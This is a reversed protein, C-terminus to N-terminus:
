IELRQIEPDDLACGVLAGRPEVTQLFRDGGEGPMGFATGQCRLAEVGLTRDTHEVIPASPVHVPDKEGDVVCVAEHLHSPRERRTTAKTVRM